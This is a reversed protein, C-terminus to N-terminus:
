EAGLDDSLMEVITPNFQYLGSDTRGRLNLPETIPPLNPTGGIISRERLKRKGANGRNSKRLLKTTWDDTARIPYLNSM